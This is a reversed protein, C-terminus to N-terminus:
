NLSTDAPLSPLTHEFACRFYNFKRLSLCCPRDLQGNRKCLSATGGRGIKESLIVYGLALILHCGRVVLSSCFAAIYTMVNDTAEYNNFSLKPSGVKAPSRSKAFIEPVVVIAQLTQLRLFGSLLFERSMCLGCDVKSMNLYIRFRRSDELLTYTLIVSETTCILSHTNCILLLFVKRSCVFYRTNCVLARCLWCFLIDIVSADVISSRTMM